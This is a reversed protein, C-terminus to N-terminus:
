KSLIRAKAEAFEADSLAGSLYLGHVRELQAAVDDVPTSVQNILGRLRPPIKSPDSTDVILGFKSHDEPYILAPIRTGVQFPQVLSMVVTKTAEYPDGDVPELRARLTVRPNDNIRVGTDHISLITAVAPIGNELLDDVVEKSLPAGLAALDALASPDLGRMFSKAKVLFILPILASVAFGGGFIIPFTEEQQVGAVVSGLGISLFLLPFLLTAGAIMSIVTVFIGGILFPLTGGVDATCTEATDTCGFSM